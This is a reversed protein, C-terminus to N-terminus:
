PAPDEDRLPQAADREDGDLQGSHAAWAFAGAALAVLVISLPVLVFLIEM